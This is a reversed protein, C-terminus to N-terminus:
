SCGLKTMVKGVVDYPVGSDTLANKVTECVNASVATQSTTPMTQTMNSGQSGSPLPSSTETKGKMQAQALAQQMQDYEGPACIHDGCIKQGGAYRVTYHNDNFSTRATLATAAPISVVVISAMLVATVILALTLKTSM